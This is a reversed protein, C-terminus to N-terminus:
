RIGRYEPIVEPVPSPAPDTRRFVYEAGPGMPYQVARLFTMGLRRMVAFSATNPEDAGAIIQEINGRSFALQMVTWSMRTALGLGWFQPHLVYTLEASRDAPNAELRVCGALQGDGDELVWLGIGCDNFDRDSLEIWHEVASRPPVVNDALYRYVQPICLLGHLANTDTATVRRLHWNQTHAM